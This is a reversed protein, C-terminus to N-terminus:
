SCNKAWGWWPQDSFQIPARLHYPGEEAYESCKKQEAGARQSLNRTLVISGEGAAAVSLAKLAVAGEDAVITAIGPPLVASKSTARVPGTILLVTGKRSVVVSVRPLLISVKCAARIAGRTVSNTCERM